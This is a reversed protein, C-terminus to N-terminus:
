VLSEVVSTFHRFDLRFHLASEPIAMFSVELKLKRDNDLKFIDGVCMNLGCQTQCYKQPSIYLTRPHQINKVAVFEEILGISISCKKITNQSKITKKQFIRLANTLEVSISM